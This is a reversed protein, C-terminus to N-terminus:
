GRGTKYMSFLYFQDQHWLVFGDKFRGVSPKYLMAACDASWLLVLLVVAAAAAFFATRSRNCLMTMRTNHQFLTPNSLFKSKRAARGGSQALSHSNRSAVHPVRRRSVGIM